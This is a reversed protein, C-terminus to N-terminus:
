DHADRGKKTRRSETERESVSRLRELNRRLMRRHGRLPEQEEHIDLGESMELVLAREASSLRGAHELVMALQNNLVMVREITGPAAFTLSGKGPGPLGEVSPFEFGHSRSLATLNSALTFVFEPPVGDLAEVLFYLSELQHFRSKTCSKTEYLKVTAALVEEYSGLRVVRYTHSHPGVRLGLQGESTVRFRWGRHTAGAIAFEADTVQVEGGPLVMYSQLELEMEDCLVIEDEISLIEGQRNEFGLFAETVGEVVEIDLTHNWDVLGGYTPYLQYKGPWWPRFHNDWVVPFNSTRSESAEEFRPQGRFFWRIESATVARPENEGFFRAGRTAGELSVVRAADRDVPMVWTGSPPFREPELEVNLERHLVKRSLYDASRIALNWEGRWPHQGGGLLSLLAERRDEWTVETSALVWALLEERVEEFEDELSISKLDAEFHKQRYEVVAAHERLENTSRLVRESFDLGSLSEFLMVALPYVDLTEVRYDQFDIESKRIGRLQEPPSYLPTYVGPITTRQLHEDFVRSCGFDILVLRGDSARMVQDPNIDLHIPHLYEVNRSLKAQLESPYESVSLFLSHLQHVGELIEITDCVAQRWGQPPPPVYKELYPLEIANLTKQAFLDSGPIGSLRHVGRIPVIRDAGASRAYSLIRAETEFSVYNRFFNFVSYDRECFGSPDREYEELYRARFQEIETANAVTFIKLVRLADDEGATAAPTGARTEGKARVLMIVVDNRSMRDLRASRGKRACPEFQDCFETTKLDSFPDFGSQALEM